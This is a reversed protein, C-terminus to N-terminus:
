LVAQCGPLLFTRFLDFYLFTIHRGFRTPLQAARTKGTHFKPSGSSLTEENNVQVNVLNGINTSITYTMSRPPSFFICIAILPYLGMM